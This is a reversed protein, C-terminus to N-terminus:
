NFDLQATNDTKHKALYLEFRHLAKIADKYGNVGVYLGEGKNFEDDGFWVWSGNGYQKEYFAPIHTRWMFGRAEFEFDKKYSKM